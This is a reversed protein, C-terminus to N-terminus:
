EKVSGQINDAIKTATTIVDSTVSDIGAYQIQAAILQTVFTQKIVLDNM